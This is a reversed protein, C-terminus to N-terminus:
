IEKSVVVLYWILIAYLAIVALFNSIEYKQSIIALTTVAWTVIYLAFRQDSERNHRPSLWNGYIASVPILAIFLYVFSLNVEREVILGLFLFSLFVLIVDISDAFFIKSSYEVRTKQLLLFPISNYILLWCGLFFKTDYASFQFPLSAWYQALWVFSAGLFAPYILQSM